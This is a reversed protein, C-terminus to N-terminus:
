LKYSPIELTITERIKRNIAQVFAECVDAKNGECDYYTAGLCKIIITMQVTDMNTDTNYVGTVLSTVVDININLSDYAEIVNNIETTPLGGRRYDLPREKLEFITDDIKQNIREWQEENFELKKV